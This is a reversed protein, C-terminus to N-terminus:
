HAGVPPSHCEVAWRVWVQLLVLALAVVASNVTTVHMSSAVHPCRGGDCLRLTSAAERPSDMIVRLFWVILATPGVMVRASRLLALVM